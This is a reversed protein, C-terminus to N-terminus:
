ILDLAGAEEGGQQLVHLKRSCWFHVLLHDRCARGHLVLRRHFRSRVEVARQEAGLIRRFLVSGLEMKRPVARRKGSDTPFQERYYPSLHKLAGSSPTTASDDVFEGCHKCKKAAAQIEEACFSCTRTRAMAAATGEFSM